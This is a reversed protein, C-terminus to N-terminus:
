WSAYGKQISMSEVFEYITDAQSRRLLKAECQENLICRLYRLIFASTEYKTQKVLSEKITNGLKIFEIYDDITKPDQTRDTYSAPSHYDLEDYPDTM